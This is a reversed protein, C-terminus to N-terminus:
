AYSAYAYQVRRADYANYANDMNMMDRRTEPLSNKEHGPTSGLHSLEHVTSVVTPRYENCYM